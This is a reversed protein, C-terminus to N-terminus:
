RCDINVVAEKAKSYELFLSGDKTYRKLPNPKTRLKCGKELHFNLKLAVHGKFSITQTNKDKKFDVIKGNSSIMYSATKSSNKDITKIYLDKGGNHLAIYTHNEFHKIGVVEKSFNLDVMADSKEIRLTTLDKLGSFLWENGDVAFSSCYFDMVKPIYESTFIPMVDQKIAYDFVYELARLSAQKSGSYLHYYIDIPKFRRPSNTLAFTQTVRKFGWFPGLWDNTFVNENQAGTYVQIYGGRQLGLPAVGSLWPSIKTIITDGGNINLIEHSHVYHLANVRPICDGSWYVTQAKHKPDLKENIFDLPKKLENELSFKYGKPKLRYKEDLNDNKIKGWFFPHTFTHSAPEVNDLAYMQRAISMLEPSLKPYLGKPSIEAGIVSVSHPIKYVKLIKNLIVDGSYYGFDGEVRNAMGDGDVHSFLLRKGNQTTVDPVILDKLSLAQKFFEFPNIVWLNDNGIDIMFSDEIAYGGWSTFASLTSTNGDSLQYELLPKQIKAKVKLGIKSLPPDVEYGIMKDKHLVGIKPLSTNQLTINLLKLSASEKTNIGFNGVFVVKIDNDILKKVWKILKDPDKYYDQFWIVVGAYQGMKKVDPFGLNVDYLKQVYGMYEFVLAGYQHASSLTRDLRTENILTFIERKVANKSSIGYIDLERNSVYPIMGKKVIKKVVEKAKATDNPKLYDVCIVDLNYSKIKNIQLDLWKRDNDSVDKYALKKGGIGKYYSEFLVADVSNHIKDIIEFGRNVILKSKPYRKHFENIFNVLALENAVREQQTKSSLHYSDLTDFFFNKFGRKIKPEIMDDFLFKIYEPNKLDMVESKWAKNNALVWSKKVKSYEKIGKDVEGVSVYAYMKDRYLKFGHRNTDINDPQVIIYDHIGVMPYSIESGYYVMASKEHLSAFLSTVFFLIIFFKM